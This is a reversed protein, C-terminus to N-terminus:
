SLGNELKAAFSLVSRGEPTLSTGGGGKGGHARAILPTKWIENIEKAWVWSTRYTIGLAKAAASLSGAREVAKMFDIRDHTLLGQEGVLSVRFKAEVPVEPTVVVAKVIAFIPIGKRIRLDKAAARTIVASLPFGVDVDVQIGGPIFRLTRVHGPLVNRASVRGPHGECLLVDEPRIRIGIKQGRRIGDWRRAALRTRGLTLWAHSDRPDCSEVTVSFQNVSM